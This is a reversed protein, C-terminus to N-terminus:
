NKLITFIGNKAAHREMKVSFGFVRRGDNRVLIECVVVNRREIRGDSSIGAGGRALEAVIRGVFVVVHDCSLFIAAKIRARNKKWEEM